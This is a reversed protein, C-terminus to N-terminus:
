AISSKRRRAVAGFALALTWVGWGAAGSNCGCGTPKDDDGGGSGALSGQDANREPDTYSLWAEGDYAYVAYYASGPAGDDVFSVAEGLTISSSEYVVTGDDPGTPWDSTTRVVKVSEVPDHRPQTWTLTVQDEGDSAQFDGISLRNDPTAPAYVCVNDINWGGLQLGEDSALTWSVEVSGDEAAAGLPVVHTAWQGDVHNEEGGNSDHNTWVPEGDASITAQDYLGDEVTLWRRYSLFSGEYGATDIVPTYLANTKGGQYEGNYEGDGLDNGWVKNGSYAAAPDGGEGMPVGWQWDDAGLTEEGALLDHHFGGDGSDFNECFVELVDGAYFSFPNITGGQPAQIEDGESNTATLYYEVFTGPEQAPIAGQVSLDDTDLGTQQWSGGFVRYHVAAEEVVFDGCQPALNSVTASVPVTADPLQIDEGNHWLSILSGGSAAPGLGHIAFAEIIGCSNPTGDSLDGNDDDAIMAEDYSSEITPDGKLLGVFINTATATGEIEGLDENLLGWMDWMAGAFILGDEHVEGVLDTPYVRNPGINRIGDGNTIFYPGIVSDNTQLAATFDAAGESLSGDFIPNNAEISYYHFGHGWEHFIVDSVRGTNNCGGGAKFFNVNGDWYANCTDDINVYADLDNTVMDVDAAELEGWARMQHLFIYTDIEALTADEDTMLGDGDFTLSGEAGDDNRVRVYTGDLTAILDGPDGEIAYSGDLETYIHEDGYELKVWPLPSVSLNGDVTRTDHEAEVVGDVFRVENHVNLIEGTAADVFTVWKGRPTHTESTTMWCTRLQVEGAVEMPLLVLKAAQDTHVATAAPGNVVANKLAEIATLNASGVVPTHRYTEAGIFMLNGHKIRATVGGRYIPLGNKTVDVNMYWTDNAASYNASALRWEGQQLGLMESNRSVFAEFQGTVDPGTMPIGPGSMRRPQHTRLDFTATWGRGEGATFRTWDKDQAFHLQSWPDTRYIRQPEKGIHVSDSPAFAWAPSAFLASLGLPGVLRRIM